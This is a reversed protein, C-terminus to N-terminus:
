KQYGQLLVLGAHSNHRNEGVLRYILCEITKNQKAVSKLLHSDFHKAENTQIMLVSQWGDKCTYRYRM